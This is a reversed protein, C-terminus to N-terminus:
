VMFVPTIGARKIRRTFTGPPSNRRIAASPVVAGVAYYGWDVFSHEGILVGDRAMSVPHPDSRQLRQVLWPEDADVARDIAASWDATSVECGLTVGRGQFGAGPKIVLDDQNALCWPLLDVAHGDATTAGPELLRTWPVFDALRDRLAPPLRGSGLEESLVALITKNGAIQDGLDDVVAVVGRRGAEVVPGLVPLNGVPDPQEGCIRYILGCRRGGLSVGATTVDLDEIPAVEARIGHRQLERAFVECHYFTPDALEKALETVVVLADGPFGAAALRVRLLSAMTAMGDPRVARVSRLYDGIVPASEFLRGLIDTDPMAGCSSGANPEVMRFMDTQLVVDPRAITLWRPPRSDDLYRRTAGDLRIEDALCSWSNRFRERFIEDLARRMANHLAGLLQWADRPLLAPPVPLRDGISLLNSQRVEAVNEGARDFWDAVEESNRQVYGYFLNNLDAVKRGLGAVSNSVM